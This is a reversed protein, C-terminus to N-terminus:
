NRQDFSVLWIFEKHTTHLLIPMSYWLQFTVTETSWVIGEGANNLIAMNTWNLKIDKKRTEMNGWMYVQINVEEGRSLWGSIDLQSNTMFPGFTGLSNTKNVNLFCSTLPLFINWMLLPLYYCFSVPTEFEWLYTVCMKSKTESSLLSYNWSSHNPNYLAFILKLINKPQEKLFM